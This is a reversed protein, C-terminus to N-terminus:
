QIEPYYSSGRKVIYDGIRVQSYISPSVSVTIEPGLGDLKIKLSYTTARSGARFSWGKNSYAETVQGEWKDFWYYGDVALSLVFAIFVLIIAISWLIKLARRQTKSAYILVAIGLVALVGLAKALRSINPDYIWTETVFEWM